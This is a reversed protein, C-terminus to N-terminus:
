DKARRARAREALASIGSESAQPEISADGAPSDGAPEGADGAPVAEPPEPKPRAPLRALGAADALGLAFAVVILTGAVPDTLLQLVDAAGQSFPGFARPLPLNGFSFIGGAYVLAANGALLVAATLGVLRASRPILPEAALRIIRWALYGFTIATLMLTVANLNGVFGFGGDSAFFVGINGLAGLAIVVAVVNAFAALALAPRRSASSGLGRALLFWGAAAALSVLVPALPPTGIVDIANNSAIGWVPGLLLESTAITVVGLWASPAERILNPRRALVLAPLAILADHPLFTTAVGVPYSLDLFLELGFLHAARVAIDVAVLVIFLLGVLPIRAVSTRRGIAFV